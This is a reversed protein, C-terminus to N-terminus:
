LYPPVSCRLSTVSAAVQGIHVFTGVTILAGSCIGTSKWTHADRQLILPLIHVARIFPFLSGFDEWRHLRAPPM